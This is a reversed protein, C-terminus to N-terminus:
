ISFNKFSLLQLIYFNGYITDQGHQFKGLSGKKQKGMSSEKVWYFSWRCFFGKNMFFIPFEIYM